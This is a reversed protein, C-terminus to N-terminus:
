GCVALLDGDDHRRLELVANEELGLADIVSYLGEVLHGSVTVVGIVTGDVGRVRREGDMDLPVPAFHSGSLRVRPSVPIRVTAKAGETHLRPEESPGNGERGSERLTMVIDEPYCVFKYLGEDRFMGTKTHVLFPSYAITIAANESTLGYRVLSSQLTKSSVVRGHEVCVQLLLLEREGLCFWAQGEKKRLVETRWLSCGRGRRWARM